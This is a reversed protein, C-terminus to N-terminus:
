RRLEGVSRAIARLAHVTNKEVEQDSGEPASRGSSPLTMLKPYETLDYRLFDEYTRSDRGDRPDGSYAVRVEGSIPTGVEGPPKSQANAPIRWLVRRHANPALDFPTAFLRGLAPGIEDGASQAQFEEGVLSVRVDRAYSRGHNTFVIDMSAMGGIGPAVDIGLYPRTRADSNEVENRATVRMQRGTQVISVAAAIAAIGGLVVGVITAIATAWTATLMSEAVEDSRALLVPIM